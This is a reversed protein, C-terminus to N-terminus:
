VPLKHITRDAKQVARSHYDLGAEPCVNRSARRPLLVQVAVGKQAAKQIVM